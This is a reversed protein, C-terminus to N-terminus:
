HERLKYRQLKGTATRPLKDIFDLWRPRKYADLNASCLKLLEGLLEDTGTSGEELCVFARPKLLGANDYHGIVACEKVGEHESLVNEIEVPSVWLGGVKLM